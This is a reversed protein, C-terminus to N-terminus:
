LFQLSPVARRFATGGCGSPYFCWVMLNSTVTKRQLGGGDVVMTGAVSSSLVYYHFGADRGKALGISAATMCVPSVDWAYTMSSKKGIKEGITTGCPALWDYRYRVGARGGHHDM